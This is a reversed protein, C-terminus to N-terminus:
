HSSSLVRDQPDFQQLEHLPHHTSVSGLMYRTMAVVLFQYHARPLDSHAPLRVQM